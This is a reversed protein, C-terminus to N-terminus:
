SYCTNKRWFDVQVVVRQCQTPHTAFTVHTRQNSVHRTSCILLLCAVYWTPLADALAIVGTMDTEYGYSSTGIRKGRALNSRALNLSVLAGMTKIASALIAADDSDIGNGALNLETIATSAAIATVFSGIATKDEGGFCTNGSLNLKASAGMDRIAPALISMDRASLGNMSLDLDTITCHTKLAAALAQVGAKDKKGGIINGALNLKSL